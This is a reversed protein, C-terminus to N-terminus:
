VWCHSWLWDRHTPDTEAGRGAHVVFLGAVTGGVAFSAFNVYPDALAIAEAVLGQANQPYLGFGYDDDSVVGDADAYYNHPHAARRWASDVATPSLDFAGYSAQRFFDRMSGPSPYSGVSFLLSSYLAPTSPAGHALDPFDVLLVLAPRTGTVPASIPQPQDIGKLKKLQSLRTLSLVTVSDYGQARIHAIVDPHPPMLHLGQHGDWTFAGASTLQASALATACALNMTAGVDTFRAAQAPGLLFVILLFLLGVLLRANM